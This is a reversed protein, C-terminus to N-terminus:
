RGNNAILDIDTGGGARNAFVVYYAGDDKERVGGLIHERDDAQHESTYGARIAVTYYWDILREMPAASIFSVVRLRCDPTDSGAAETVRADPYLPIAAPLRNAWAAGYRLNHDCGAAEGAQARALEGLTGEGSTAAPTAAPASLPAGGGNSRGVLKPDVIIQDQLAGTLATDADNAKGAPERTKRAGDGCAGLGLALALASISLSTRITM